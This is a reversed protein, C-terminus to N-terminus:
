RSKKKQNANILANLILAAGIVGAVTLLRTYAQDSIVVQVKM